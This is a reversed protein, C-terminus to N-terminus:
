PWPRPRRRGRLPPPRCPLARPVRLRLPHLSRAHPCRPFPERSPHLQSRRLSKPQPRRPNRRHHGFRAPTSSRASPSSRCHPHSLVPGPPPWPRLRRPPRGPLVAQRLRRPRSPSWACRSRRLRRMRRTSRSACGIAASPFRTWGKSSGPPWRWAMSRLGWLVAATRLRATDGDFRLVAHCPAVDVDELRVMVGPDSGITVEPSTFMLSGVFRTEEFLIVELAGRAKVPGGTM